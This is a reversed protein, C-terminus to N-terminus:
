FLIAQKSVAVAGAFAVWSIAGVFGIIRMFNNNALRLALTVMFVYMILALLKETVWADVLPYQQLLVCLTIASVILVTDVLHPLVKM